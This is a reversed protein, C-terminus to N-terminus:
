DTVSVINAANTASQVIGNLRGQGNIDNTITQNLDATQDVEDLGSVSPLSGASIINALNTGTQEFDVVRALQYNSASNTTVHSAVNDIDQSASYDQLTADQLENATILNSANLGDQVAPVDSTGELYKGFEVSNMVDQDLYAEQIAPGRIEDANIVNALNAGVQSLGDVSSQGPSSPDGNFGSLDISGDRTVANDIDQISDDDTTQTIEDKVDDLDALNAVNTGEQTLGDIYQSFEAENEVDQTVDEIDQDLVSVDDADFLNAVNTGTQSADNWQGYVTDMENDIDQELDEALQDVDDFEGLDGGFESSIVNVLNSGEQTIDNNNHRVDIQNLIEQVGEVTQIVDTEDGAKATHAALALGIATTAILLKKM